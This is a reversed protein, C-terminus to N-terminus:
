FISCIKFFETMLDDFRCLEILAKFNLDIPPIKKFACLSYAPIEQTLRQETSPSPPDTETM